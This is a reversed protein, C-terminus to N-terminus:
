ESVSKRTYVLCCRRKEADHVRHCPRRVAYLVWPAVHMDQLTMACAKEVSGQRRNKPQINRDVQELIDHADTPTKVIDVPNQPFFKRLHEM